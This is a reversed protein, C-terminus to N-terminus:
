FKVVYVLYCTEGQGWIDPPPVKCAEKVKKTTDRNSGPVVAYVEDINQPKFWEQENKPKYGMWGRMSTIRSGGPFLIACAFGKVGGTNVCKVTIVDGTAFRGDRTAVSSLDGTLVKEGNVYLEFEDDCSIFIRGPKGSKPDKAVATGRAKEPVLSAEVVRKEVKDKMLGSLGPLAQRYWQGARGQMQKKAAGTQKEALDWWGDGLKMQETSSAAGALEKEALQKLADDNGRALMPLGKTWDGKVLCLYNGVTLSAAPDDPTKELTVRAARVGEYVKILEAVDTARGRATSTLEKERVKGAEAIALNGLTEAITFDDQSIAQDMLKLAEEAIAKHQIPQQAVAVFKALVSAKMETPDVQFAGAMADIAQFATQGDTAQMAIDRALRLLVFQSVPDDKSENGKDLLKKALAQKEVATKAKAYEGGYVEKVLKTAKAQAAEGPVPNKKATDQGLAPM